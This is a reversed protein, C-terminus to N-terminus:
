SVPILDRDKEEVLTSDEVLSKFSDDTLRVPPPPPPLPPPLIISPTPQPQKQGVQHYYYQHHHHHHHHHPHENMQASSNGGTTATGGGASGDVKTAQPVNTPVYGTGVGGGGGGGFGSGGGGGGELQVQHNMPVMTPMTMMTPIQQPHMIHMPHMQAAAVDPHYYQMNTTAATITAASYPHHQQYQQPHPSPHSPYYQGGTPAIQGNTISPYFQQQQQHGYPPIAPDQQQQQQQQSPPHFMAATAAPDPDGHPVPGTPLPRHSPGSGPQNKGDVTRTSNCKVTVTTTGGRGGGAAGGPAAPTRPPIVTEFSPDTSIQSTTTAAAAGSAAATGATGSSVALESVAHRDADGSEDDEKTTTDVPTAALAEYDANILLSMLRIKKKKADILRQQSGWSDFKNGTDIFLPLFPLFQHLPEPCMTRGLFSKYSQRMSPGSPRTIVRPMVPIIFLGVSFSNGQTM